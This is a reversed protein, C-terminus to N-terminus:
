SLLYWSPGLIVLTTVVGHLQDIVSLYHGVECDEIPVIGCICPGGRPPMPVSWCVDSLSYLLSAATAEGISRTSRVIFWLAMFALVTHFIGLPTNLGDFPDVPAPPQM